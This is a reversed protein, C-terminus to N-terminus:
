APQVQISQPPYTPIELIVLYRGLGSSDRSSKLPSLFVPYGRQDSSGGYESRGTRHDPFP